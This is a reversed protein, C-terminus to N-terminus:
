ATKAPAVEKKVRKAAVKEKLERAVQKQLEGVMEILLWIPYRILCYSDKRYEIGEKAREGRTNREQQATEQKKGSAQWLWFNLAYTQMEMEPLGAAKRACAANDEAM